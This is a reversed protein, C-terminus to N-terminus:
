VACDNPLVGYWQGATEELNEAQILFHELRRIPM